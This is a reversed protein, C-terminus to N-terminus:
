AMWLANHDSYFISIAKFAGAFVDITRYYIADMIVNMNVYAKKCIITQANQKTKPYLLKASCQMISISYQTNLIVKYYLRM